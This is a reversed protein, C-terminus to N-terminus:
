VSSLLHESITSGAFLCVNRRSSAKRALSGVYISNSSNGIIYGYLVTPAPLNITTDQTFRDFYARGVFSFTKYSNEHLERYNVADEDFVEIWPQEDQLHILGV